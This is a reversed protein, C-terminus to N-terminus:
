LKFINPPAAAWAITIDGDNPTCPLGTAEHIRAIAYDSTSTPDNVFGDTGDVGIIISIIEAGSVTTLVVDNADAVGATITKGAFAGSIEDVRDELPLTTVDIYEDAALDMDETADGLVLKIVDTDWGILGGLFNERGHDFLANAM